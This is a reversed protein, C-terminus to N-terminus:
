YPVCCHIYRGKIYVIAISPKGVIYAADEAISLLFVEIGQDEVKNDAVASVTIPGVGCNDVAVMDVDLDFDDTERATLLAIDM